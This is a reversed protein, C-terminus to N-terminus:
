IEGEFFYIGTEADFNSKPTKAFVEDLWGVTEALCKETYENPVCFMQAIHYKWKLDKGALYIATPAIDPLIGIQVHDSLRTFSEDPFGEQELIQMHLVNVTHWLKLKLKVKM